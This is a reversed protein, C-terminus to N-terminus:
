MDVEVREGHADTAWFTEKSAREVLESWEVPVPEVEVGVDFRKPLKRKLTGHCHGHLMLTGSHSGKWTELPYHCLTARHKEAKFHTLMEAREWPLRLVVPNKEDHNGIVLSKKGRLRYFIQFLDEGRSHHFGFDGLVWVTDGEKKVVSNWKEVLADNMEKINSYPRATYSLIGEHNFHTDAWFYYSM